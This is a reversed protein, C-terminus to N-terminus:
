SLKIEPLSIPLKALDIRMSNCATSNWGFSTNMEIECQFKIKNYNSNSSIIAGDSDFDFYGLEKM